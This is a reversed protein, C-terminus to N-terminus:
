QNNNSDLEGGINKYEGFTRILINNNSYDDEWTQGVPVIGAFNGIYRMKEADNPGDLESGYAIINSMQQTGNRIRGFAGGTAYIVNDSAPQSGGYVSVATRCGLVSVNLDAGAIGGIYSASTVDGYKVVTGAAVSGDVICSKISAAGEFISLQGAIGGMYSNTCRSGEGNIEVDSLIVSTINGSSEGVVGGVSYSGFTGVCQNTIKIAFTNDLPSVDDISGTANNGVIGGILVNANVDGEAGAVTLTFKGGLAVESLVGTNSGLVGGINHVESGDDGEKLESQVSIKMDVDRVRVNNITGHTRNWMCLAGHRSKDDDNSEEGGYNYKVSTADIKINRIGVNKITGYNYRFLPCALDSIYHYDGDFVREENINPVFDLLSYDYDQFTVNHLLKFGNTGMCELIKTQIGTEPDTYYYDDNSGKCIARLFEKVDVGIYSGTEDWGDGSSPSTITVGPSKTITLSYAKGAELELYNKDDENTKDNEPIKAFDYTLYEHVNTAGAPYSLSFKTYDGPELFYNAKTIKTIATANGDEDKPSIVSADIYVLNGFNPDPIQLFQFSFSEPLENADKNLSLKFANNFQNGNADDERKLWYTESVQPELDILTLYACLHNFNLSVARGYDINEASKAYLPDGEEVPEIESLKYTKAETAETLLGNSKPIYYAEFKGNVAVSPWTLKNGEVGKWTKGELRLAGYRTMQGSKYEGDSQLEETKFTALIHIVDGNEFATKVQGDFGRTGQTDPLQFDFEIPLEEQSDCVTEDIYLGESCGAIFPLVLILYLIYTINKFMKIM